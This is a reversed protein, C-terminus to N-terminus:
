ALPLALSESASPQLNSEKLACQAPSRSPRHPMMCRRETKKERTPRLPSALVDLPQGMTALRNGNENEGPADSRLPHSNRVPFSPRTEPCFMESFSHNERQCFLPRGAIM